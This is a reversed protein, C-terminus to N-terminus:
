GSLRERYNQHRYIEYFRLETLWSQRVSEHEKRASLNFAKQSRWVVSFNAELKASLGKKFCMISDPDTTTINQLPLQIIIGTSRFFDIIPSIQTGPYRIVKDGWLIFVRWPLIVRRCNQECFQEGLYGPPNQNQQPAIMM